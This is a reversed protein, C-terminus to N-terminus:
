KLLAIIRDLVNRNAEPLQMKPLDDVPVWRLESHHANQPQGRWYNVEYFLLLVGVEGYNHTAAFRLAGIEADINLEEKLERALAVQPQEGLEIKGGPFEWLGALNGSEPRLGLLVSNERRIIAAVVPLWPRRKSKKQVSESM